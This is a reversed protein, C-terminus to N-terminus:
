QKEYWDIFRHVASDDECELYYAECGIGLKPDNAISSARPDHPSYHGPTQPHVRLNVGPIVGNGPFREAFFGRFNVTRKLMVRRGRATDFKSTYQVSEGVQRLRSRLITEVGAAVTTASKTM